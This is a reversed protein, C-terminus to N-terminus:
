SHKEKSKYVKNKNDELDKEYKKLIENKKQDDEEFAALLTILNDKAIRYYFIATILGRSSTQAADKFRLYLDRGKKVSAQARGLLKENTANAKKGELNDKITKKVNIKIGETLLARADEDYKQVLKKAAELIAVENQLFAKASEKIKNQFYLASAEANSHLKIIKQM